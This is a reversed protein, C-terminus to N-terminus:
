PQADVAEEGIDVVYPGRPASQHFTQADVEGGDIWYRGREGGINAVFAAGSDDGSPRTSRELTALRRSLTNHM